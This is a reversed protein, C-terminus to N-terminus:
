FLIYIFSLLKLKGRKENVIQLKKIINEPMLDWLDEVNLFFSHIKPDKIRM